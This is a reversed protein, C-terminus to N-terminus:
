RRKMTKVTGDENFTVDCDQYPTITQITGDENYNLECFKVCRKHNVGESLECDHYFLYWKGQYEVISHHTTWGMVPNLIHGKYTFPGQPKDGIAYALFHTTGTSYSLYYKGNYKHM